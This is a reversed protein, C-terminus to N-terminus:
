NYNSLKLLMINERANIDFIKGLSVMKRLYLIKLKWWIKYILTKKNPEM